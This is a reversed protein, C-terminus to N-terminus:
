GGPGVEYVSSGNDDSIFLHGNDPNFALGTPEDSYSITTETGLLFGGTTIEFLNDGTFLSTENVESDSLLITGTDSLYTAGATDPSPPSFLWADITLIERKNAEKIVEQMAMASIGSYLKIIEIGDDTYRQMQAPIEAFDAVKTSEGFAEGTESTNGSDWGSPAQSWPAGVIFSRPGTVKGSNIEDRKAVIWEHDVGLDLTTTVGAYLYGNQRQQVSEDDYTAAYRDGPILGNGWGGQTHIHMDILGPMATMGNGDISSANDPVNLSGSAGIAVIKGDNILIDQNEKPEDGLGDIVRIGSIVITNESLNQSDEQACGATAFLSVLTGFFFLAFTRNTLNM